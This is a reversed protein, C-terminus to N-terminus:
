TNRKGITISYLQKSVTQITVPAKYIYTVQSSKVKQYSKAFAGSNDM